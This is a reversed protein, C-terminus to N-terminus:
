CSNRSEWGCARSARGVFAKALRSVAPLSFCELNEDVRKREMSKDSIQPAFNEFIHLIKSKTPFGLASRIWLLM